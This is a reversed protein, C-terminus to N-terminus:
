GLWSPVTNLMYAEFQGCLHVNLPLFTEKSVRIPVGGSRHCQNRAEALHGRDSTRTVASAGYSAVSNRVPLLLPFRDIVGSTATTMGKFLGRPGSPSVTVASYSGDLGLDKMGLHGTKMGPALNEYRNTIILVMHYAITQRLTGPLVGM